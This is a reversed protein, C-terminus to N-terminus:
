LVEILLIQLYIRCFTLLYTYGSIMLLRRVAAIYYSEAIKEYDAAKEPSIQPIKSATKVFSKHFAPSIPYILTYYLHFYFM